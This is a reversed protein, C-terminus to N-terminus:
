FSKSLMVRYDTVDGSGDGGADLVNVRTSLSMDGGLAYGADFRIKSRDGVDGQDAEYTRDRICMESGM